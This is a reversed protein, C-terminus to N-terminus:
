VTEVFHYELATVGALSNFVAANGDLYARTAGADAIQFLAWASNTNERWLQLTSMGANGRNEADDDFKKKFTAFDDVAYHAIMQTM